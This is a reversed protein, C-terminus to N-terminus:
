MKRKFVAHRETHRSIEVLNKRMLERIGAFIKDRGTNLKESLGYVTDEGNALMELIRAREYVTDLLPAFVISFQRDTFREGYVNGRKLVDKKALLRELRVAGDPDYLRIFDIKKIVDTMIEM